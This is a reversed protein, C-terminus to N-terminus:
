RHCRSRRRHGSGRRKIPGRQGPYPKAALGEVGETLRASRELYIAGMERVPGPLESTEDALASELVKLSAPGKPAV